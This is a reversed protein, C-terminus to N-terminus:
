FKVPFEQTLLFNVAENSMDETSVSPDLYITVRESKSSTRIYLRNCEFIEAKTVRSSVLYSSAPAVCAQINEGRGVKGGCHIISTDTLFLRVLADVVRKNIRKSKPPTVPNLCRSPISITSRSRINMARGQTDGFQSVGGFTSVGTRTDGNIFESPSVSESGLLLTM